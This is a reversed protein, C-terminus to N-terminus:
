TRGLQTQSNKPRKLTRLAARLSQWWTSVTTRKTQKKTTGSACGTKAGSTTEQACVDEEPEPYELWCWQANIFLYGEGYEGRRTAGSGPNIEIIPGRKGADISRKADWLWPYQKKDVWDSVQTVRMRTSKSMVEDFDRDTERVCAPIIIGGASVMDHNRLVLGLMNNRGLVRTAKNIGQVYKQQKPLSAIYAANKELREKESQELKSIREAEKDARFKADREDWEDKTLAIVMGTWMCKNEWKGGMTPRGYDKPMAVQIKPTHHLREALEEKVSDAM